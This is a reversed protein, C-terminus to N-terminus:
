SSSTQDLAPKLPASDVDIGSAANRFSLCRVIPAAQRGRHALRRSIDAPLAVPDHGLTSKGVTKCSSTPSSEITAGVIVWM